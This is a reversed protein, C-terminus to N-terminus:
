KRAPDLLQAEAFPRQAGQDGVDGQQGFGVLALGARHVTSCPLSVPRPRRLAPTWYRWARHAVIPELQYAQKQHEEGHHVQAAAQSAM